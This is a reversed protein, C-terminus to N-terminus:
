ERTSVLSYKKYVTLTVKVVQDSYEYRRFATCTMTVEKKSAREINFYQLIYFVVYEHGVPPKHLTLKCESFQEISLVRSFTTSFNVSTRRLKAQRSEM